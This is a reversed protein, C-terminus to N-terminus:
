FCTEAGPKISRSHVWEEKGVVTISEKNLKTKIVPSLNDEQISAGLQDLSHNSFSNTIISTELSLGM